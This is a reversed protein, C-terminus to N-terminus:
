RRPSRWCPRNRVPAVRASGARTGSLCRKAARHTSTGSQSPATPKFPKLALPASTNGVRVDEGTGSPSDRRGAFAATIARETGRSCYSCPARCPHRSRQEAQAPLLLWSRAAVDVMAALRNSSAWAAGSPSEFLLLGRRRRGSHQDQAVPAVLRVVEACPRHRPRGRFRYLARTL